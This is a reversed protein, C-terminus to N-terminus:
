SEEHQESAEALAADSKDVLAKDLKKTTQVGLKRFEETRRILNGRGTSLKNFADNYSSQVSTINRGLKEMDTVFGHFKDYLKAAKDAIEQANQNQYEYQWINNITRLAVMLNTPSVLMINADMAQKILDPAQEMALLYAPEVPVFMLIYDLTNVGLLTQYDKKGLEKIHVRLSNVHDKLHGQKLTDDEENFYQEYASLSVKSDIIVDKNQPLHVVVDPKFAKGKEDKLHEQTIFEHGERLGSEVLIRELVIEGWNGQQKNDGKLAKTLAAAEQTIQQNLEKLGMIETKLSAREQGERIHQESVQKKFGEIQEKLPNLLADLGAKSTETFKDSKQQFIKNALNEFQTQLRIEAEQLLALKEENAKNTEAHKANAAQYESERLSLAERSEEYRSQWDQSQAQLQSIRSTLQNVQELHKASTKELDTNRHRLENVEDQVRELDAKVQQNQQQEYQWKQELAQQALQAQQHKEADTQMLDQILAQQRARQWLIGIVAGLVIGIALATM